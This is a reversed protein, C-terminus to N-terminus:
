SAVCGVPCADCLGGPLFGRFAGRHGLFALHSHPNSRSFKHAAHQHLRHVCRHCAHPAQLSCQAARHPGTDAPLPPARKLDAFSAIGIYLLYLTALMLRLFVAAAFLAGVSVPLLDGMIVPMISPPVLIGLTGASAITGVALEKQYGGQLMSSLDIMTLMLVSAGVIGTTAAMITGMLTVSM